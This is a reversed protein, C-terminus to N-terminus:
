KEHLWEKVLKSMIKLQSHTLDEQVTKEYAFVLYIAEPTDWYYIIRLGGSKGRGPMKWRIKRLGGSGRILKGTDPRLLLSMQLQHYEDAPLLENIRKTFIPTEIFIVIGIYAM